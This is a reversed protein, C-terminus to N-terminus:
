NKCVCYGRPWTAAPQQRPPYCAWRVHPLGRGSAHKTYLAAFAQRRFFQAHGGPGGTGLQDDARRAPSTVASQSGRPAEAM